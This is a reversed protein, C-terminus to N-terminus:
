GLTCHFCINLYMRLPLGRVPPGPLAHPIQNRTLVAIIRPQKSTQKMSYSNEAVSVGCGLILPRISLPSGAHSFYNPAWVPTMCCMRCGTSIDIVPALRLSVLSALLVVIITPLGATHRAVPDPWAVVHLRLYQQDAMFNDGGHTRSIIANIKAKVARQMRPNCHLDELNLSFSCACGRSPEM